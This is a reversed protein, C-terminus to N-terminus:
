SWPLQLRGSSLQWRQELVVGPAMLAPGPCITLSVLESTIRFESLNIMGFVGQPSHTPTLVELFKAIVSPRSSASASPVVAWYASESAALNAPRTRLAAAITGNLIAAGRSARGGM